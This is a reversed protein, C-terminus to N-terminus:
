SGQQLPLKTFSMPQEEQRPHSLSVQFPEMKYLCDEDVKWDQM